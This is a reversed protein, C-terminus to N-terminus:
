RICRHILYIQSQAATSYSEPVIIVCLLASLHNYIHSQPGLLPHLGGAAEGLRPRNVSCIRGASATSAPKMCGPDAFVTRTAM